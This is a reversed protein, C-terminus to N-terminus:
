LATLGLIVLWGFTLCQHISPHCAIKRTRKLLVETMDNLHTPGFLFYTHNLNCGSFFYPIGTPLFRKKNKKFKKESHM